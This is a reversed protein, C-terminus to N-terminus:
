VIIYLDLVTNGDPDGGITYLNKEIDSADNSVSGGSDAANGFLKLIVLEDAVLKYPLGIKKGVGIYIKDEAVGTETSHTISGLTILPDGQTKVELNINADHAAYVLSEITINADAADAVFHEKFDDDANLAAAIKAAVDAESDDDVTFTVMIDKPSKEGLAVATFTLVSDGAAQAAGTVAVTAKQKAPTNARAPLDVKTITKFAKSGVNGSTGNPDIEETIVEDAFNTGYIKVKYSSGTVQAASAKVKVNRPIDPNSLGTIVGSSAQEGLVLGDAIATDSDDGPTVQFHALFARDVEVGEADTTIKQGYDHKYAAMSYLESM